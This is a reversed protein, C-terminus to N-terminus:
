FDKAREQLAQLLGNDEPSLQAERQLKDLMRKAMHILPYEESDQLIVACTDLYRKEKTRGRRVDPSITAKAPNGAWNSNCHYKGLDTTGYKECKTFDIHNNSDMEGCLACLNTHFKCFRGTHGVRTCVTCREEWQELTMFSEYDTPRYRQVIEKATDQQKKPYFQRERPARPSPPTQHSPQQSQGHAGRVARDYAWPAEHKRRQGQPTEAYWALCM